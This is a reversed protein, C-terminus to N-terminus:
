LGIYTLSENILQKNELHLVITSNWSVRPFQIFIDYVKKTHIDIQILKQKHYKIIQVHLVNKKFESQFKYLIFFLVWNWFGNRYPQFLLDLYLCFLFIFKVEVQYNHHHHRHDTILSLSHYISYKCIGLIKELFWYSVILAIIQFISFGDLAKM